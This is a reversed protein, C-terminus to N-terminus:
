RCIICLNKIKVFHQFTKLVLNGKANSTEQTRDKREKAKRKKRRNLTNVIFRVRSRNEINNQRGIANCVMGCESKSDRWSKEFLTINLKKIADLVDAVKIFKRFGFKNRGMKRLRKEM